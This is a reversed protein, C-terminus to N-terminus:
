EGCEAEPGCKNRTVLPNHMPVCLFINDLFEGEGRLESKNVIDVKGLNLAGVVVFFPLLAV